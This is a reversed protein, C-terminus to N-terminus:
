RGGLSILSREPDWSYCVTNYIVYARTGTIEVNSFSNEDLTFDYNAIKIEGSGADRGQRNRELKVSDAEYVVSVIYILKDEDKVWPNSRMFNIFDSDSMAREIISQPISASRYNILTLALSQTIESRLQVEISKPVDVSFSLDLNDRIQVSASASPGSFEISESPFSLRKVRHSKGSRVILVDGLNYQGLNLTGIETKYAEGRTLTAVAAIRNRTGLGFAVSLGIAAVLFFLLAAYRRYPIRSRQKPKLNSNKLLPILAANLGNYADAKNIIRANNLEAWETVQAIFEAGTLFIIEASPNEAKIKRALCLGSLSGGRTDLDSFGSLNPNNPLMLDIIALQYQSGASVAAELSGVDDCSIGEDILTERIRKRFFSDDEAIIARM